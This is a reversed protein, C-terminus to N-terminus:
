PQDAPPHLLAELRELGTVLRPGPRFWLASDFLHVRGTKVAPVVKLRGWFREVQELGVSAGTASSSADIIVDPALKIVMELPLSPYRVGEGALVNDAGALTLLEDAFSGPGAVVLPNHGYVMLVRPRARAKARAAVAAVRARMDAVMAAARKKAGLVDGLTQITAHVDELRHAPLVLVPVKLRTLTEMRQRNGSNPVCVVLDPRLAMIAELSPDLFGGVKPLSKVQEPYDDYRTVGVVRDGLGLAFVIETLNPALTVLRAVEGDPRAEGLFAPKGPPEAGVPWSWAVLAIIPWWFRARGPPM